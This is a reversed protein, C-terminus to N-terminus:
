DIIYPCFRSMNAVDDRNSKDITIKVYRLTTPYFYISRELDYTDTFDIEGLTFYTVNDASGEIIVHRTDRQAVNDRERRRGISIQSVTHTKDFKVLLWHPSPAKPNYSSHWYKSWDDNLIMNRGGGDEAQESSCNVTFNTRDIATYRTGVKIKMKGVAGSGDKATVLVAAEGPALATVVGNEDVSVLEPTASSFSVKKDTANDPKITYTGSIDLKSGAIMSSNSVKINGVLVKNVKIKCTATVGSGDLSKVTLTAEGVEIGKISGETSVTFIATNSSEYALARNTVGEPVFGIKVKKSQDKLIETIGNTADEFVLSQTPVPITHVSVKCSASIGLNSESKVTLVGEGDALATILGDANIAFVDTYGSEFVLNKAVGAPTVNTEVQLTTGKELSIIGTENVNTISIRTIEGSTSKDDDGCGWLLITILSIATLKLTSKM